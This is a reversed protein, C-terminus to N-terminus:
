ASVPSFVAAAAASSSSLFKFRMIVFYGAFMFRMPISLRCLFLPLICVALEPGPSPWRSWPLRMWASLLTILRLKM